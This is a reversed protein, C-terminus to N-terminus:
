RTVDGEVLEVGPVKRRAIELMGPSFDLGVVRSAGARLLARALMGSGCACDLVAAGRGAGAAEAALRRWRGDRGLSMVANALDYRASIADFMGRVRAPDRVPGGTNATEGGPDAM